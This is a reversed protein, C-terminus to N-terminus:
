KKFCRWWFSLISHWHYHEDRANGFGEGGIVSGSAIVNFDGIKTKSHITVLNALHNHKGLSVNNEIVCNVGIVCNEGIVCNAEVVSYAGISVRADIFATNDIVATPHIAHKVQNADYYLKSFHAFAVQANRVVLANGKYFPLFNENLIVAAVKTKKLQALYKKDSIYAITYASKADLSGARKICVKGDGILKANLKEALIGLKFVQNNM